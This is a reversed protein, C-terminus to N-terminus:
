LVNQVRIESVEPYISIETLPLDPLSSQLRYGELPELFAKNIENAQETKTLDSFTEVNALNIPDQKNDFNIIRKM